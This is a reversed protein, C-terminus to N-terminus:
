ILKRERGEKMLRANWYNNWLFSQKMKPNAIHSARGQLYKLARSLLTLRNIEEDEERVTLTDAAFYCYLMNHPDAEGLKEDRTLRNLEALAEGRDGAKGALYSRFGRMLHALVSGREPSGLARGEMNNYGNSWDVVEGPYLKGDQELDEEPLNQLIEYAERLDGSMYVTEAKYLLPEREETLEEYGGLADPFRFLYGQGRYLWAKVVRLAQRHDYLEALTLARCFFDAAETYNGLSMYIRGTLFYSYTEQSKRGGRSFLSGAESSLDLARDLNGVLYGAEAEYLLALGELAPHQRGRLLDSALTFYELAEVTKGLAMMALGVAINGRGSLEDEESEELLVLARKASILSKRFERLRYLYGAYELRYKSAAIRERLEEIDDYEELPFRPPDARLGLVALRLSMSRMHLDFFLHDGSEKRKELVPIIEKLFTEMGVLEGEEVIGDLRRHIFVVAARFDAYAAFIRCTEMGLTQLDQSCLALLTDIMRRPFVEEPGTTRQIIYDVLELPDVPGCGGNDTLGSFDCEDRGRLARSTPLGTEELLRMPSLGYVGRSLGSALLFMRGEFSLLDTLARATDEAKLTPDVTKGQRKLALHLLFLEGNTEEAMGARDADPAERHELRALRRELDIRRPSPVKLKVKPFHELTEPLQPTWSLVVPVLTSGALGEAFLRNLIRLTAPSYSDFSECILVPPLGLDSMCRFYARLYLQYMLLFSTERRDGPHEMICNFYEQWVRKEHTFRLYPLLKDLKWREMGRLFPSEPFDGSAAPTVVLWPVEPIDKALTELAKWLNYRKAAGEPGYIHIIRCEDNGDLEPVLLELIRNLLNERYLIEWPVSEAEGSGVEKEVPRDEMSKAVTTDYKEFARLGPGLIFQEDGGTRYLQDRLIDFALDEDRDKVADVILSFGQLEEREEQFFTFVQKMHDLFVSPSGTSGSFCYHFLDRNHRVLSGSFSACLGDMQELASLFAKNGTKRLQGASSIELLVDIENM